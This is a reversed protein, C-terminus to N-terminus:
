RICILTIGSLVFSVRVLFESVQAQVVFFGSKGSEFVKDRTKGANIRETKLQNELATLEKLLNGEKERIAEELPTLVEAAEVETEGEEPTEPVEISDLKDESDDGGDKPGSTGETTADEKSVYRLYSPMRGAVMRSGAPMRFASVYGCIALLVVLCCFLQM